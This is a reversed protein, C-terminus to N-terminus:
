RSRTLFDDTLVGIGEGVECGDGVGIGDDGVGVGEDCGEGDEEDLELEMVM